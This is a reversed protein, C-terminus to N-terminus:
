MHVTAARKAPASALRDHAVEGLREAGLRLAAEDALAFTLRLARSPRGDHYFQHGPAYLVGARVADDFIVRSDLPEPLEVWVQYGGEPRTWRSGEPMAASLAGVLADRRGRLKRRMTALHRDYAGSRIFGALAAQLPLAGGLDSAHKLALLADVSRGRAVVAGARVGPFLSKSFSVLQVVLGSEDLGALPPVPRGAFRLDMEYADEVVPKGARHAVALLERRHALSTTIGMPNHFTPITYFLKVEPRRLARDLADLDPGDGRMPVPLPRLGLGILTGLVNHYTPEEVAVTDGAETFLRLALSIGQSAGHCLVVSEAGVHVGATRLRSAVVERLDGHGQPGGYALLAAGGDAFARNMARRFAEVPFLAPDPKLSHLPVADVADPYRARAREFDLLREVAPALVAEVPAGPEPALRRQGRVFTGRGVYAEVVGEAALEEYALSVTDRNVSLREALQRIPPLRDGEVLRGAVVQRRIHDAIQHYVPAAAERRLDMELTERLPFAMDSSLIIRALGRTLVREDPCIGPIRDFIPPVIV